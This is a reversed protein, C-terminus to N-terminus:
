GSGLSELVERSSRPLGLEGFGDLGRLHPFLALFRGAHTEGLARRAGTGPHFTEMLMGGIRILAHRRTALHYLQVAGPPAIPVFREGDGYDAVPVLVRAQGILTKLRANEVVMRAGPGLVLDGGPAGPALADPVVRTLRTLVSEASEVGPVYSTGGIWLLTEPGAETEIVDGPELDEVAVPGLATPVLTGRAFAAAATEFLPLAPATVTVRAVSGDPRLAAAEYRRTLSPARRPPVEASPAVRSRPRSAAGPDPRPLAPDTM